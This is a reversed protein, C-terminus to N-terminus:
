ASSEIGPRGRYVRLVLFLASGFVLLSIVSFLYVAGRFAGPELSSMSPNSPDYFVTVNSGVAYQAVKAEAELPGYYDQTGAVLRDGVYSQGNVVYRYNIVPWCHSCNSTLRSEIIVGDAGPWSRSARAALWRSAAANIFVAAVLFLSVAVVTALAPPIVHSRYHGEVNTSM